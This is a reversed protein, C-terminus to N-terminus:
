IITFYWIYPLLPIKSKMTVRLKNKVPKANKENYRLYFLFEFIM